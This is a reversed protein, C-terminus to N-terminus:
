RRLADPLAKTFGRTACDAHNETVVDALDDAGAEVDQDHPQHDAYAAGPCVPTACFSVVATMSSISGTVRTNKGCEALRAAPSCRRNRRSLRSAPVRIVRAIAKGSQRVSETRAVCIRSAQTPVPKSSAARTIM